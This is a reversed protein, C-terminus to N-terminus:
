GISRQHIRPPPARHSWQKYLFLSEPCQRLRLEIDLFSTRTMSWCIEMEASSPVHRQPHPVTSKKCPMMSNIWNMDTLIVRSRMLRTTWGNTKCIVCNMSFLGVSLMTHMERWPQSPTTLSLKIFINNRWLSSLKGVTKMLGSRSGLIETATSYILESLTKWDNEVNQNTLSASELNAEMREAFGLKITNLHKPAKQGQPRRKPQIRIKLKSVILHHDTWCEASCMTKTVCVDQRDRKWVVVYDILHWHKSHPHVWSTRNHTLNASCPAPPWYIISKVPRCCSCNMTTATVWVMSELWEKGPITKLASDQILTMLFSSSTQRQSQCHSLPSGRLVQGESQGPQDHNSWLGQGHHLAKM